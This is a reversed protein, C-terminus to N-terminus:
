IEIILSLQTLFDELLKRDSYLRMGIADWSYFDFELNANDVWVLVKFENFDIKEFNLEFSPEVPEFRYSKLNELELFNELELKLRKLENIPKLALVINSSSFSYTKSPTEFLISCSLWSSDEPLAQINLILSSSLSKTLETKLERQDGLNQRDVSNNKRLLETSVINEQGRLCLSFNSQPLNKNM